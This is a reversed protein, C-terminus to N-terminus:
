GYKSSSCCLHDSRYYRIMQSNALRFETDKGANCKYTSGTPTGIFKGLDHYELLACFHGNTSGCSGDILTYLDGTFHNQPLPLPKAFEEYKAYPEAFYSVSEQQLYSFLITSCFPDGGGNGRLDLILNNINQQKIAQFCSDMFSRFYDVKDYYVFTPVTLIATDKEPLIEFMLPPSSFHSFVVKHVAEHSCPMLIKEQSENEGPPLFKIEYQEPLGYVSAFRLSFRKMLQAEVFFPNLADASITSRIDKM